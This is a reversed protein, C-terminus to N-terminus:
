IRRTVNSKSKEITGGMQIESDYDIIAIVDRVFQPYKDLINRVENESYVDALTQLFDDGHLNDNFAKDIFNM